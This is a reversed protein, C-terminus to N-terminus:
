RIVNEWTKKIDQFIEYDELTLNLNYYDMDVLGPKSCLPNLNGRRMADLDPYIPKKLNPVLVTTDIHLKDNFSEFDHPTKITKEGQNLLKLFLSKRWIAPRLSTAIYTHPGTPSTFFNDNFKELIMGTKYPPHMRIKGVEEHLIMIEEAQQFFVENVNEILFHDEFCLFFFDDSLNEFFPNLFDVWPSEDNFNEGFSHFQFNESFDFNPKEFGLVVFESSKWYKKQLKHFGNLCFSYKNSTIIFKKM